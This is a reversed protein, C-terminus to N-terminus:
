PALSSIQFAPDKLAELLANRQLECRQGHLVRVADDAGPLPAILRLKIQRIPQDPTQFAFTGTRPELDAPWPVSGAGAGFTVESRKGGGTMDVISIREAKATNARTLSLKAGKDVCVDGDAYVPVAVWSFKYRAAEPGPAAAPSPPKAALGRTMGIYKEDLDEPSGLRTTVSKWLSADAPGDGALDQVAKKLPGTLSQTKGSPTMIRVSAGAPIDLTQDNTMVTGIGADPSNSGIVVIDARAPAGGFGALLGLALIRLARSM